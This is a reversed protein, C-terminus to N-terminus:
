KPPPTEGLCQEVTLEPKLGLLCFDYKAMPDPDGAPLHAGIFASLASRDAAVAGAATGDADLASKVTWVRLTKDRGGSAIRQGDPSFRVGLVMSEHEGFTAIPEAHGAEAADPPYRWVRVVGDETAAAVMTGDANFVAQYVTPAQENAPQVTIQAKTAVDVTFARRGRAVLLLNRDTPHFVLARPLNDEQGAAGTRGVARAVLRPNPPSIMEPSGIVGDRVPYIALDGKADGAALRSGDANLALAWSNSPEDGPQQSALPAVGPHGWLDIADFIRFTQGRGGVAVLRGDPSFAAVGSGLPRVVAVDLVPRPGSLDVPMLSVSSDQGFLVLRNGPANLRAGFYSRSMPFECSGASDNQEGGAWKGTDWFCIQNLGASMLWSGDPSYDVVSIPTKGRVVRTEHQQKLADRALKEIEPLAAYDKRDDLFEKAVLLLTSARHHKLEGDGWLLAAKLHSRNAADTAAALQVRQYGVVAFFAVIVLAATAAVIAAFRRPRAARRGRRAAEREREAAARYAEGAARYQEVLPLIGSLKEPKGESLPYRGAWAATPRNEEWWQLQVEFQGGTKLFAPSKGKTEWFRADDAIKRFAALKDAEQDAWGRLRRWQRILSEHSVDLLPDAPNNERREEVFSAEIFADMVTRLQEPRCRALGCVESMPAPARKYRGSADRESLRRFMTEAIRAPAEGLGAYIEDAHDNLIGRIGGAALYDDLTLLVNPRAEARDGGPTPPEGAGGRRWAQRWLWLLAHQMLPLHDTDYSSGAGIDDMIREVLAPAIEGRYTAAPREIADRLDQGRLVPTIYQTRNLIEALGPFNACQEIFDTRMTLVIYLDPHPQRFFWTILHIFQDVARPQQNGSFIEEFQDLLLLLRRPRSSAAAAPPPALQDMLLWLGGREARLLAAIGDVTLDQAPDCLDAFAKALNGLPDTGPRMQRATWDHGARTLFGAELAPIVGVKVLSSKGCGSPGVVSVFQSADLRELVDDKNATRGFFILSEDADATIRFPRLGPYPYRPWAEGAQWAAAIDASM